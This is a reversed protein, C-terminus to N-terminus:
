AFLEEALRMAFDESKKAFHVGINTIVEIYTEDETLVDFFNVKISTPHVLKSSLKYVFDHHLEYGYKTACTKINFQGKSTYQSSSLAADSLAQAKDIESTDLGRNTLLAKFSKNIELLDKHMQGYWCKLADQDSYIHLSIIYIEFINRVNLSTQALDDRKESFQNIERLSQKFLNTLAGNLENFPLAGLREVFSRIVEISTSVNEQTTLYQLTSDSM